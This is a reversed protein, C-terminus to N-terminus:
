KVFAFKGLANSRLKVNVLHNFNSKTMEIHANEIDTRNEIPKLMKMRRLKSRSNDISIILFNFNVIVCLLESFTVKSMTVEIFRIRRIALTM